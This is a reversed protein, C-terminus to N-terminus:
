PLVGPGPAAVSLPRQAPGQAGMPEQTRLVEWRGDPQRRGVHLWVTGDLLATAMFGYDGPEDIRFPVIGYARKVFRM